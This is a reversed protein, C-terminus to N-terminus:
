PELLAMGAPGALHEGPPTTGGLSGPRPIRWVLHLAPREAASENRTGSHLLWGSFVIATGAPGTLLVEDPHSELKGSQRRLDPRIHSGPVVRTAGNSSTFDTLAVIAAAVPSTGDAHLRQFGHGPRPCRYAVEDPRFRPGLIDTVVTCLATRQVLEAFFADRRHLDALHRTGGHPKDRAERQEPPLELFEACAASATALDDPSLFGHLVAFGRDNDFADPFAQEATM